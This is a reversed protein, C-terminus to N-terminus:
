KSIARDYWELIRWESKNEPSERRELIIIMNGSCVYNSNSTPEASFAIRYDYKVMANIDSLFKMESQPYLDLRIVNYNKFVLSASERERKGGRFIIDDAPYDPTGIDSVYFFSDDWIASMYMEIDRSEYGRKWQDFIVSEIQKESYENDSSFEQIEDMNKGQEFTDVKYWESVWNSFSRIEDDNSQATPIKKLMYRPNAREIKGSLGNSISKKDVSPLKAPLKFYDEKSTQLVKADPVSQESRHKILIGASGLMLIIAIGSAILKTKVSLKMIEVGGTLMNETHRHLFVVFASLTKGLQERIKGRARVLRAALAKASVGHKSELEAYSTNDLYREKILQKETEPLKDIAEMVKALTERLILVEDVSPERSVLNNQLTIFETQRRRWNQCKHRAIQRLWHYFRNHDKLSPLDLFASIFVDQTLDKADEPEKVWSLIMGYIGAYYDTVLSNFAQHDGALTQEVLIADNM